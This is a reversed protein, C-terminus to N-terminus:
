KLRLISSTDDEIYRGNILYIRDYASDEFLSIDGEVTCYETWPIFVSLWYEQITANKALKKYSTLQKEKLNIAEVVSKLDEQREWGGTMESITFHDLIQGSYYSLYTLKKFEFDYGDDGDLRYIGNDIMYQYGEIIEKAIEHYNDNGNEHSVATYFILRPPLASQDLEKIIKREVGRWQNDEITKGNPFCRVHELGVHKGEYDFTFDPREGKCFTNIGLYEFLVGVEWEEQKNKSENSM